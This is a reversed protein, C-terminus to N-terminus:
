CQLLLRRWLVLPPTSLSSSSSSSSLTRQLYEAESRTHGVSVLCLEWAFCGNVRSRISGGNCREWVPTWASSWCSLPSAQVWPRSPRCPCCPVMRPCPRPRVSPPCLRWRFPRCSLRDPLLLQSDKSVNQHRDSGRGASPLRLESQFFTRLYCSSLM